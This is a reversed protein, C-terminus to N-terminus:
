GQRLENPNESQRLDDPNEATVSVLWNDPILPITCLVVVRPRYKDKQENLLCILLSEWKVETTVPNRSVDKTGIMLTLTDVRDVNRMEMMKLVQAVSAGGFSIVATQAVVFIDKLGRM